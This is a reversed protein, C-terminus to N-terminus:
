RNVISLPMLLKGGSAALFNINLTPLLLHISALPKHDTGVHSMLFGFAFMLSAIHSTWLFALVFLGLGNVHWAEVPLPYIYLVCLVFVM